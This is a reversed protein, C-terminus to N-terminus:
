GKGEAEREISPLAKKIAQLADQAASKRIEGGIKKDMALAQTAVGASAALREILPGWPGVPHPKGGVIVVGGGDVGVGGLVRGFIASDRYPPRSISSDPKQYIAVAIGRAQAPINLIRDNPTGVGESCIWRSFPETTSEVKAFAELAQAVRTPVFGVVNAQSTLSADTTVTVFKDDIFCGSNASFADDIIGAQGVGPGTIPWYWATITLPMEGVPQSLPGAPFVQGSAGDTVSWFLLKALGPDGKLSYTLTEVYYPSIFSPYSVDVESPPNPELVASANRPQRHHGGPLYIRYHVSVHPM